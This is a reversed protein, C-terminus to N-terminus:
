PVVRYIRYGEGREAPLEVEALWAPSSGAMLREFLNDREATGYMKRGDGPCVLVLGVGRQEVIQRAESEDEAMLFLLSDRIGAVNRHYPSGVSGHPTFYIIKSGLDPHALVITPEAGLADPAGLDAVIEMLDCSKAAEEGSTEAASADNMAAKLIVFGFLGANIAGARFLTRLLLNSVRELADTCRGLLDALGIVLLLAAYHGFRHIALGVPLCILVGVAVMLWGDWGERTRERLLVFLLYPVVILANGFYALAQPIQDVNRPWIPQLEEIRDMYSYKVVPDSALNPGLLFEPYVLALIAGATAGCLGLVIGRGVLSGPLGSLGELRGILAWVGLGLLAVLLHVISIRDYEAVLWGAPPREVVLAFLVMAFLGISLWLGRKAMGPRGLLWLLGLTAHVMLLGLLFEMTLWLGLGVSAGALLGRRRDPPALLLRLMLGLMVVFVLFVLTHHDPRAWRALGYLLPQLLLGVVLLFRRFGDSYLPAVAWVMALVLSIHLLPTVVVGWWYLGQRFGLFPELAWAGALLLVDFPRTWHLETGYPANDRPIIGDYWAGGEGLLQVRILRMYSDNGMLEGTAIPPPEIAHTIYAHYILCLILAMLYIQSKEFATKLTM